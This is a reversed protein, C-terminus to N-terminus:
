LVWVQFKEQVRPRGAAEDQLRELAAQRRAQGEQEDPGRRHRHGRAGRPVRRGRRGRPARAHGQGQHVAAVHRSSVVSWGGGSARRRTATTRSAASKARAWSARATCIM